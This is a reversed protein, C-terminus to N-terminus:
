SDEQTPTLAESLAGYWAPSWKRMSAEIADVYPQEQARILDATRPATALLRQLRLWQAYRQYTRLKERSQELEWHGRADQTLQWLSRGAPGPFTECRICEAARGHTPLERFDERDKRRRCLGVCLLTGKGNPHDRKFQAAIADALTVM